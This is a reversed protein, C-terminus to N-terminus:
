SSGRFKVERFFRAAQGGFRESCSVMKLWLLKRRGLVRRLQVHVRLEWPLRTAAVLLQWLRQAHAYVPRRCVREVDRGFMDCLRHPLPVDGRGLALHDDLFLREHPGDPLVRRPPHRALREEVM